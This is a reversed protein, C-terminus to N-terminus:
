YTCTSLQKKTVLQQHQNIDEIIKVVHFLCVDYKKIIKKTIVHLLLYKKINQKTKKTKPTKTDKVKNQTLRFFM